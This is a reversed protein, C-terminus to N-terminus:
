HASGRAMELSQGHDSVLFFWRQRGWAIDGYVVGHGPVEVPVQQRYRYAPVNRLTM